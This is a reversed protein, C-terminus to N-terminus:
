GTIEQGLISSCGYLALISHNDPLSILVSCGTTAPLSDGGPTIIRRPKRSKTNPHATAFEREM